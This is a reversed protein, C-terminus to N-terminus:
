MVEKWGAGELAAGAAAITSVHKMYNMLKSKGGDDREQTVNGEGTHTNRLCVEFLM